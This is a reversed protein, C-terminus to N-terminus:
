GCACSHIGTEASLAGDGFDVPDLFEPKKTDRPVFEFQSKPKIQFQVSSNSNRSETFKPPTAINASDTMHVYMCLCVFVVIPSAILNSHM